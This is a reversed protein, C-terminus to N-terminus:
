THPPSSTITSQASQHSQNSQNRLTTSLIIPNITGVEITSGTGLAEPEEQRPEDFKGKRQISM